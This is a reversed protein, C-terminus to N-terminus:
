VKKIKKKLFEARKKEQKASEAAANLKNQEDWFSHFNELSGGIDPNFFLEFSGFSQCSLRHVYEAIQQANKPDRWDFKYGASPKFNSINLLNSLDVREGEKPLIIRKSLGDIGPKVKTINKVASKLSETFWRKTHDIEPTHSGCAIFGPRNFNDLAKFVVGMFFNGQKKESEQLDDSEFFRIVLTPSATSPILKGDQRRFDFFDEQAPLKTPQESEVFLGDYTGFVFSVM